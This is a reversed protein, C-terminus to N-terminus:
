EAMGLHQLITKARHAYTHENVVRQHAKEAMTELRAPDALATEVQHIMEEQSRFVLMEEGPVFYGRDADDVYDGLVVSGAMPVDFDRPNLCTPCQHSHINVNLQASRYVDCLDHYSIFGGYRDKYKEPLSEKWSEPGFVKLGYPLLADIIKKRKYFTVANYIFYDLMADQRDFGKQTTGSKAV